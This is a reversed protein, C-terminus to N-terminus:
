YGMYTLRCLHMLFIDNPFLVAQGLTTAEL